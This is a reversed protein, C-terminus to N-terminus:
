AKMRPGVESLMTEIRAKTNTVMGSSSDILPIHQLHAVAKPKPAIIHQIYLVLYFKILNKSQHERFLGQSVATPCRILIPM